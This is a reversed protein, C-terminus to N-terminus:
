IQVYSNFQYGKDSHILYAQTGISVFEKIFIFGVLVIPVSALLWLLLVSTYSDPLSPERASSPTNTTRTWYRLFMSYRTNGYSYGLLTGNDCKSDFKGLNEKTNLIFCQCGFLTFTHFTPNEKKGCNM